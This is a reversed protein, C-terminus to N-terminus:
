YSRSGSGSSRSVQEGIARGYDQLVSDLRDEDQLRMIKGSITSTVDAMTSLPSFYWGGQEKVAIFSFQDIGLEGAQPPEGFDITVPRGQVTMTVKLQRIELRVYQGSMPFDLVYGDPMVRAQDGSVTSSGPTQGLRVQPSSSPRGLREAFPQGYLSFARREATPLSKAVDDYRGSQMADVVAKTTTSLAEEPSSAGPAEAASLVRGRQVQASPHQENYSGLAAEGATLLPSFYWKGSEKVTVMSLPLTSHEDPKALDITQPLDIQRQMQEPTTQRGPRGQMAAVSNSLDALRQALADEDTTSVTLTGSVFTVKSVEDDAISEQRTSVDKQEVDILQVVQQLSQLVDTAEAGLGSDSAHTASQQVLPTLVAAESPAVSELLKVPNKASLGDILSVAAAEPSSHGGGVISRVAWWAGGGIALAIVVVIATIWIWRRGKKTATPPEDAGPREPTTPQSSSWEPQAPQLASGAPPTNHPLRPPPGGEGTAPKTALDAAQRGSAETSRLRAVEARARQDGESGLWDLLGPYVNPHRAILSGLGPEAVAIEALRAASTAPDRVEHELAPNTM